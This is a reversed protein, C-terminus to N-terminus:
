EGGFVKLVKDQADVYTNTISVMNDYEPNGFHLDTAARALEM